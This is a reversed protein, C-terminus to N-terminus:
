TQPIDQLISFGAGQPDALAAFRGVPPQGEEKVIDQPHVVITAGLSEAEALSADVDAVAFYVAWHPPIPPMDATIEVTGCVETGGGPAHCVAYERNGRRTGDGSGQHLVRHRRQPQLDNARGLMNRRTRRHSARRHAPQGALRCLVRGAPGPLLGHARGRFRGDARVGGHRWEAQHNRRNRRRQYCHLLPELPASPEPEAGGRGAPLNLRGGPRQAKAHPLVLRPTIEQPDDAWGFLASYFSLAGAEDTTSLEAWSPAGPAHSTTEPM